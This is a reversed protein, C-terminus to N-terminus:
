LVKSERGEARLQNPSDNVERFLWKVYRLASTCIRHTRTAAGGFNIERFPRINLSENQQADNCCLTIDWWNEGVSAVKFDEIQPVLYGRHRINKYSAATSLLFFLFFIGQRALNVMKHAPRLSFVWFRRKTVKQLSQNTSNWNSSTVHSGRRGGGLEEEKSGWERPSLEM